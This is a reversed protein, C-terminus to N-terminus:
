AIPRSSSFCQALFPAPSLFPTNPVLMLDRESGIIEVQQYGPLMYGHVTCMQYSTASAERMREVQDAM